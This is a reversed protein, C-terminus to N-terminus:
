NTPDVVLNLEKLLDVSKQAEEKKINWNLSKAENIIDGVTMPVGAKKLVSFMKGAISLIKYNNKSATKIEEVAHKIDNAKEELKIEIINALEQGFDTIRYKFLKSEFERMWLEPYREVEEEIIGAQKMEALVATVDSSYPGYYYPSFRIGLELKENVFYITKQILTKGEVEGSNNSVYKLILLVYEDIRNTNRM